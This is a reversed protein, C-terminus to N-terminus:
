AANRRGRGGRAQAARAETLAKKQDANLIKDLEADIEKTLAAVEEDGKKQEDTKTVAADGAKVVDAQEKGEDRAKQMAGRRAQQQEQTLRAKTQAATWKEQYKTNLETIKAQVDAPLTTLFNMPVRTPAGRGRGRGRRQEQADASTAVVTLLLAVIGLTAFFKTM